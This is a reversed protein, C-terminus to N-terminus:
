VTSSEVPRASSSHILSVGPDIAQILRQVEHAERISASEVVVFFDFDSNAVRVVLSDIGALLGAILEQATQDSVLHIQSRWEAM